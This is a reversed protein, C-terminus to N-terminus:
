VSSKKCEDKDVFGECLDKMNSSLKPLTEKHIFANNWKENYENNLTIPNKMINM